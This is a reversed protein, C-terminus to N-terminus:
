SQRYWLHAGTNGISGDDLWTSSIHLRAFPSFGDTAPNSDTGVYYSGVPYLFTNVMMKAWTERCAYQLATPLQNSIYDPIIPTAGNGEELKIRILIIDFGATGLPEQAELMFRGTNSKNLNCVLHYTTSNKTYSFAEKSTQALIEAKTFVLTKTEIDSYTGEDDVLFEMTLTYVDKLSDGWFNVDDMPLWRSATALTGKAVTSGTDGRFVFGQGERFYFNSWSNVTWGLIAPKDEMTSYPKIVTFDGSLFINNNTRKEVASISPANLEPNDGTVFSNIVQGNRIPSAGVKKIAKYGAPLGFVDTCNEFGEPELSVDDFAVISGEPLEYLWSDEGNKVTFTSTDGNTLTITYTDVYGETGTKEISQISSGNTVTFTQSPTDDDFEITYTDVLGSTSTKEIKTISGGAEGKLMLTEFILKNNYNIAM